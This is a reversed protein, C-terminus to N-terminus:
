CKGRPGQSDDPALQNLPPILLPTAAQPAQPVASRRSSRSRSHRRPSTAPPPGWVVCKYDHILSGHAKVLAQLQFNSWTDHEALAQEGRVGHMGRLSAIM